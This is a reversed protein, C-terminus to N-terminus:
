AIEFSGNWLFRDSNAWTFPQTANVDNATGGVAQYQIATKYNFGARAGNITANYWATGNDLLNATMLISDANSATFPMSVYWEGSGFTTSSGMAINGRVFCTKGILKYQGTITGNGIVPNSSAATWVPTYSTWATTIDSGSVIVSGTVTLSGTINTSGNVDLQYSPSTQNIGVYGASAEITLKDRSIVTLHLKQAIQDWRLASANNNFTIKGEKVSGDYTTIHGNSVDLKQSPSSTGIGVTNDDLVVMSTAASSNEVRFATTASTTGSGKVTLRASDTTTGLLLNGSGAGFRMRENIGEFFEFSSNNTYIIQNRTTSNYYTRVTTAGSVGININGQVDLTQSPTGTGIGVNGSGSVYLINNVAPSDIELLASGSSGSIHLSATPSTTGIGVFSGTMRVLNANNVRFNLYTSPYNNNEEFMDIGVPVVANDYIGMQLTRGIGAAIFAGEKNVSGSSTILIQGTTQYIAGNVELPYLPTNTGVGINGSGSVYLINNVAPSDIEFLATSSAGSIHLRASPNPLGIGIFSGTATLLDAGSTNGPRLTIPGTSTTLVIGNAVSSDTVIAGRNALLANSASAPYSLVNIATGAAGVRLGSRANASNTGNVIGLTTASDRDLRMTMIEDSNGPNITRVGIFGSSSIYLHNTNFASTGDDLITLRSTASSNEVRLATTASTTGSGRITTPKPLSIATFFGSTGLILTTTSNSLATAGALTYFSSNIENNSRLSGSIDVGYNTGTLTNILIKSSGSVFLINNVAPSDIEFLASGSSGSIHLSASPTSTGIGVRSGSYVFGNDAGLVGGNNFVVQTTAGPAVVSGSFSGTFGGTATISGTVILSGTIRASGTYPFTEGGGGGNLAYSATLAYSASIANTISGSFYSASVAQDVIVNRLYQPGNNNKEDYVVNQPSYYAQGTNPDIVQTLPIQQNKLFKEM